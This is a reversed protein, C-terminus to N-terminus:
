DRPGYGPELESMDIIKAKILIMMNKKAVYTAQRKFFFNVVPIKDIWPATSEM